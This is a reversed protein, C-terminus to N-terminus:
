CDSLISSFFQVFYVDSMAGPGNFNKCNDLMLKIDSEFQDLSEYKTIQKSIKGLDLPTPITKLYLEKSSKEVIQDM